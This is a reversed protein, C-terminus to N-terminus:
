LELPKASAVRQTDHKWVDSTDVYVEVNNGDPDDFYLSQSVEHDEAVTKLGHSELHAKAERLEDLSEGIKFAVHMLGPSKAPAAQADAGVECTAFDHHNGLSFFTMCLGPPQDPTLRAVIPLGLIGNYFKESRAQDRVKIVVHGLSEIKM